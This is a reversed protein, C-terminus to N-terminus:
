FPVHIHPMFSNTSSAIGYLTIYIYTTYQSKGLGPVFINFICLIIALPLPMCPIAKHLPGHKEEVKVITYGSRDLADPEMIQVSPKKTHSSM